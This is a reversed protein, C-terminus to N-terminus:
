LKPFNTSIWSNKQSLYCIRSRYHVETASWVQYDLQCSTLSINYSVCHAATLTHIEKKALHLVKLTTLTPLPLYRDKVTFGM